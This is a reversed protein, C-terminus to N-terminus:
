TMEWKGVFRELPECVRVWVAQVFKRNGWDAKEEFICSICCKVVSELEPEEEWVMDSWHLATMYNTQEHPKGDQGLYLNRFEQSEVPQNFLLELLLIGLNSLSDRIVRRM